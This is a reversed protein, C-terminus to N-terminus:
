KSEVGFVFQCLHDETQQPLQHLNLAILLLLFGLAGRSTIQMCCSGEGSESLWHEGRQYDNQHCGSPAAGASIHVSM